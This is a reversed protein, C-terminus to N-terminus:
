YQLAGPTGCAVHMHVGFLVHFTAAVGVLPTLVGLTVACCSTPSAGRPEQEEQEEGPHRGIGPM